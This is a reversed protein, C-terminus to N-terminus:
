NDVACTVAAGLEFMAKWQMLSMMVAMMELLLNLPFSWWLFSLGTYTGLLGYTWDFVDDFLPQMEEASKCNNAGM